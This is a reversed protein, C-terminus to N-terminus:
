KAQLSQLVALAVDPTRPGFGLLEMADFAYVRGEKVAPTLSLAPDAEVASMGGLADLGQTTLLLVEPAAVVAMEPSLPRYGEFGEVANVGGALAIIADASTGAGSALGAGGHALLFLVRIPEQLAERESKLRTFGKGVQEALAAGEPVAEVAEAVARIKALVGEPSAEDPVLVVSLGAEDIQQLVAPPGADSEALLLDPTMAILPEAALNRVYGVQPLDTAAQPYISTVDVAIVKDGRGLAYIIETVSGGVSVIRQPPEAQLPWALFCLLALLPLSKM